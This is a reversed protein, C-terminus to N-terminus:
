HPATGFLVAVFLTAIIGIILLFFMIKPVVKELFWDVLKM